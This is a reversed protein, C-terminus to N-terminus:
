GETWSLYCRVLKMAREAGSDPKVAESGAVNWALVPLWFAPAEPLGEGVGELCGGSPCLKGQPCKQPGQLAQLPCTQM